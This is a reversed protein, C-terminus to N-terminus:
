RSLQNIVTRIEEAVPRIDDETPVTIVIIGGYSPGSYEIYNRRAAWETFTRDLEIGEPSLMRLNHNVVLANCILPLGPVAPTRVLISQM